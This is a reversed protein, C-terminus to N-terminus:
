EQLTFSPAIQDSVVTVTFTSFDPLVQATEKFQVTLLDGPAVSATGSLATLNGQVGRSGFAFTQTVGSYAFVVRTVNYQVNGDNKVSLTLTQRDAGVSSDVLSMSPDRVEATVINRFQTYLVGGLTLTIAVLIVTAIFPSIGRRVKM